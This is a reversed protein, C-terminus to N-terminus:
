PNDSPLFVNRPKPRMGYPIRGTLTSAKEVSRQMGLLINGINCIIIRENEM